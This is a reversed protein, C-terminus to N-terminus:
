RCECAANSPLCWGIRLFATKLIIQANLQFIQAELSGYNGNEHQRFSRNTQTKETQLGHWLGTLINVFSQGFSFSIDVCVNEKRFKQAM